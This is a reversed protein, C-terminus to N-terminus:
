IVRQYHLVNQCRGRLQRLGEDSVIIDRVMTLIAIFVNMVPNVVILRMLLNHRVSEVVRLCRDLLVLKVSINTVEKSKIYIISASM